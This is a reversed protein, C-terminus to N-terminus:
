RAYKIPKEEPLLDNLIISKEGKSIKCQPNKEEFLKFNIIIPEPTEINQLTRFANLIEIPNFYYQVGYEQQNGWKIYFRRPIPLFDKTKELFNISEESFSYASVEKLQDNSETEAKFVWKYQNKLLDSFDTISQINDYDNYKEGFSKNYVLMELNGVTEKATLTEIIKPKQNENEATSIKLITKGKTLIEFILTPKVNNKQTLNKIKEYPLKTSLLYFKREDVSFYKINISDPLLEEQWTDFLIQNRNNTSTIGSTEKLSENDLTKTSQNFNNYLVADVIKIMNSTESSTNENSSYIKADWVIKNQEKNVFRVAVNLILLLGLIAVLLINIYNLKTKKM